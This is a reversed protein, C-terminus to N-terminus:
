KQRFWLAGGGSIWCMSFGVLHFTFGYLLNAILRALDPSLDLQISEPVTEQLFIFSHTM